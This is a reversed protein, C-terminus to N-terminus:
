KGAHQRLEDFTTTGFGHGGVILAVDLQRATLAAYLDAAGEVFLRPVPPNELPERPTGLGPAYAVQAAGFSAQPAGRQRPPEVV